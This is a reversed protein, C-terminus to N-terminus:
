QSWPIRYKSSSGRTRSHSPAGGGKESRDQREESRARDGGGRRRGRGRDGADDPVELLRDGARDDDEVVEAVRSQRPGAGGGVASEDERGRGDADVVQDGVLLPEERREHAEPVLRDRLADAGDLDPERGRAAAGAGGRGRRGEPVQAVAHRGVDEALDGELLHGLRGGSREVPDPEVAQDRTLDPGDRVDSASVRGKGARVEADLAAQRVAPFVIQAALVGGHRIRGLARDVRGASIRGAQGEVNRRRREGPDADGRVAVGDVEALVPRGAELAVVHAPTVPGGLAADLRDAGAVDLLRVEVPRRSEPRGEERDRRARPLDVGAIGSRDVVRRPHRHRHRIPM